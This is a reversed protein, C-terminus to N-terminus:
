PIAHGAADPADHHWHDGSPELGKIYWGRSRHSSCSKQSPSENVLGKNQFSPRRTPLSMLADKSMHWANVLRWRFRHPAKLSCNGLLVYGSQAPRQLSAKGGGWHPPLCTPYGQSVPLEPAELVYYLKVSIRSAEFLQIPLEWGIRRQIM